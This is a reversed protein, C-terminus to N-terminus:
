VSLNTSKNHFASSNLEATFAEINIEFFVRELEILTPTMIKSGRILACYFAGM